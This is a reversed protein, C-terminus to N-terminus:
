LVKYLVVYCCHDITEVLWPTLHCFHLVLKTSLKTFTNLLTFYGAQKSLFLVDTGM